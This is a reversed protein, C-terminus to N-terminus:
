AHNKRRLLFHFVATDAPTVGPLLRLEGLTTPRYRLLKERFEKSLAKNKALEELLGAPVPVNEEKLIKAAERDMKKIYAEYVPAM